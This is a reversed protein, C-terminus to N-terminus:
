ATVESQSKQLLEDHHKSALAIGEQASTLPGNTACLMRRRQAVKQQVSHLIVPSLCLPSGPLHTKQVSFM